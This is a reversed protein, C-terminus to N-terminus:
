LSSPQLGLAELSWGLKDTLVVPTLSASHLRYLAAEESESESGPNAMNHDSRLRPKKPFVSLSIMLANAIM